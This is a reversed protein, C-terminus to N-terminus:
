KFDVCGPSQMGVNCFVIAESMRSAGSETDKGNVGGQWQSGLCLLSNDPRQM